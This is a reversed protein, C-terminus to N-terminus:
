PTRSCRAGHNLSRLSPTGGYRYSSPLNSAADYFGGGRLMRHSASSINVCNTCSSLPYTEAYWDLNWEMMNGALDSQGWKGNGAMASGVPAINLVGTCSEADGGGRYCGYVALTTNAAPAASGWPYERQESGGAAAYNWELETPLRGGDWICFAFAEFWTICNMPLEDHKATWTQYESSCQVASDLDGATSELSANWSADWGSDTVNPNAGSGAAPPTAQTGMGANVFARFRGVTIEYKDLRFASVTAPYSTDNDRHFSGAAVFASACCDETGSAGCNNGAGAGGAKCSQPTCTPATGSWTGSALCTRTADGAMAGGGDQWLEHDEIGLVENCGEELTCGVVVLLM